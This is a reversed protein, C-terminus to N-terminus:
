SEAEAMDGAAFSSLREHEAALIERVRASYRGGHESNESGDRTIHDHSWFSEGDASLFGALTRAMDAHSAPTANSRIDSGKILMADNFTVGYHWDNGAYSEGVTGGGAASIWIIIEPDDNPTVYMSPIVVSYEYMDDNDDKHYRPLVTLLSAPLDWEDTTGLKSAHWLKSTKEYGTVDVTEGTPIYRAYAKIVM